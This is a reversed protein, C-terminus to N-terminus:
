WCRLSTLQVWLYTQPLLLLRPTFVRHTLYGVSMRLTFLNYSCNRRNDYKIVVAAKKFYNAQIVSYFHNIQRSFQWSMLWKDSSLELFVNFPSFHCNLLVSFFCALINCSLGKGTIWYRHRRRFNGKFFTPIEKLFPLFFSKGAKLFTHLVVYEMLAHIYDNINTWSM